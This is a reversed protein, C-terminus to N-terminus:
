FDGYYEVLEIIKENEMKFFSTTFYPKKDVSSVVITLFLDNELKEIREIVLPTDQIEKYGLTSQTMEEVKVDVMGENTRFRYTADNSFYGRIISTDQTDIMKQTDNWYSRLFEEYNV